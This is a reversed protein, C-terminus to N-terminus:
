ISAVTILQACMCLLCSESEEEDEDEYLTLDIVDTADIDKVLQCEEQPVMTALLHEIEKVETRKRVLKSQRQHELIRKDVFGDETLDIENELQNLTDRGKQIERLEDNVKKKCEQENKSLSQIVTDLHNLQTELLEHEDHIKKQASEAKNKNKKTEL